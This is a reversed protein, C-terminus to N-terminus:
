SSDLLSRAENRGRAYAPETATAIRLATKASERGKMRDGSSLSIRSLLNHGDCELLRYGSRDSLFMSDQVASLAAPTSGQALQLRAMDLLIEAELAIRHAQRARSLNRTLSAELGAHRRKPGAIAASQVDISTRLCSISLEENALLLGPSMFDMAAKFHSRAAKLDGLLLDVRTAALRHLIPEKGAGSFDKLVVRAEKARGQTGLVVALERCGALGWYRDGAERAIQIANRIQREASDLEGLELQVQSSNILAMCYDRSSRESDLQLKRDLVTQSLVPLGVLRYAAALVTLAWTEEAPNSLRSNLDADFLQSLLVIVSNYAGLKSYLPDLYRYFLALAKDNREAGILHRFVRQAAETEQEYLYEPNEFKSASPYLKLNLVLTHIQKLEANGIRELVYSRVMRHTSYEGASNTRAFGRDALRACLSEAQEATGGAIKKIQRKSVPSSLVCLRDLLRREEPSLMGHVVDLSRLIDAHGLRTPETLARLVEQPHEAWTKGFARLLLPHHDVRGSLRRLEDDTGRVGIERLFKASSIEALPELRMESCFLSGRLEAPLVQAVLLIRGRLPRKTVERLFRAALLNSRGDANQPEDRENAAPSAVAEFQSEYGNLVLLCRRTELAVALHVTKEADGCEADPPPVNLHRLAEGVFRFFSNEASFSWWFVVSPAAAENPEQDIESLSSIGPLPNRIVDNHMWVWALSSKGMGSLGTLAIVNEKGSVLRASLEKREKVRDTFGRELVFDHRIFVRPNRERRSWTDGSERTFQLLFASTWVPLNDLREDFERAIEKPDPPWDASAGLVAIATSSFGEATTNGSAPMAVSSAYFFFQRTPISGEPLDTSIPSEAMQACCDFFGIQTRPYVPHRLHNVLSGTTLGHLGGPFRSDGCLLYRKAADATGHGVWYILLTGTGQLRVLANRLNAFKAGTIVVKRRRLENLRETYQERETLSLSLVIHDAPVQRRLLLAGLDLARMGIPAEIDLGGDYKEIAVIWAHVDHPTGIVPMIGVLPVRQHGAM